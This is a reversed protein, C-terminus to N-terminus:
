GAPPRVPNVYLRRGAGCPFAAVVTRAGTAAIAPTACGRLAGSLSVTRGPVVRSGVRLARALVRRGDAWAVVPQGSRTVALSAPGAHRRATSLAVPATWAGGAARRRAV